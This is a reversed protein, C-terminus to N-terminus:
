LVEAASESHSKFHEANPSDQGNKWKNLMRTAVVIEASEPPTIDVHIDIDLVQIDAEATSSIQWPKM